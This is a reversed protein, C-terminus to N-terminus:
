VYAVPRPADVHLLLTVVHQESADELVEFLRSNPSRDFVTPPTLYRPQLTRKTLTILRPIHVRRKAQPSHKPKMIITLRNHPSIDTLITM